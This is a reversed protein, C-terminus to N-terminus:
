PAGGTYVVVAAFKAVLKALTTLVPPLNAVPTLSVLPLNTAPTMLAPSLDCSRTKVPCKASFFVRSLFNLVWLYNRKRRGRHCEKIHMNMKTIYEQSSCKQLFLLSLTCQYFFFFIEEEYVTYPFESHLPLLTM